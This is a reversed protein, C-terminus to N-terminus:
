AVGDVEVVDRIGVWERGVQALGLEAKTIRVDLREAFQGGSSRTAHRVRQQYHEEAVVRGLAEPYGGTYIMLRELVVDLKLPPAPSRVVGGGAAALVVTLMLRRTGIRPTMGQGRRYSPVPSTPF